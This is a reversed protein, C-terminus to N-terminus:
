GRRAEEMMADTMPLGYLHFRVLRAGAPPEGALDCRVEALVDHLRRWVERLEDVTLYSADDALIAAERWEDDLEAEHGLYANVEAAYRQLLQRRLETAADEHGPGEGIPSWSIGRSTKRWPRSRADEAEAEEVFGYRALQRLHYSTSGSSEGLEEALQTATAEGGFSLAALLRLRLPHALARLVRPDDIARVDDTSAM